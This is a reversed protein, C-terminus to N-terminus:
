DTISSPRPVEIENQVDHAMSRELLSLFRELKAASVIFVTRNGLDRDGDATFSKYFRVCDVPTVTAATVPSIQGSELSVAAPDYDAAFLRANTVIIPVFICGPQGSKNRRVHEAYADTAHVVLQADRELLRKERESDSASVVCFEAEVSGPAIEPYEGCYLRHKRNVGIDTRLFVARASTIRNNTGKPQLFTFAKQTKKCEICGVFFPRKEVVIDLFQADSADDRWPWEEAVVSCHQVNRAVRAVATQFPFGSGLLSGIVAQPVEPETMHVTM